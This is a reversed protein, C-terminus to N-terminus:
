RWLGCFITVIISTTIFQTEAAGGVELLVQAYDRNEDVIFSTTTGGSAKGSSWIIPCGRFICGRAGHCVDDRINKV